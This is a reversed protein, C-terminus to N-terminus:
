RAEFLLLTEGSFYGASEEDALPRLLDLALSDSRVSFYGHLEGAQVMSVVVQPALVESTDIARQRSDDGDTIEVFHEYLDSDVDSLWDQQASSLHDYSISGIQKYM